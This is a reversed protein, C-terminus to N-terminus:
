RCVALQHLSKANAFYALLSESIVEAAGDGESMLDITADDPMMESLAELIPCVLDLQEDAVPREGCNGIALMVEVQFSPNLLARWAYDRCKWLDGFEFSDKLDGMGGSRDQVDGTHCVFGKAHDRLEAGLAQILDDPIEIASATMENEQISSVLIPL